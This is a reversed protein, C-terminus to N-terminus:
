AGITRCRAGVTGVSATTAMTTTASTAAAEVLWSATGVILGTTGWSPKGADIGLGPHDLGPLHWEPCGISAHKTGM